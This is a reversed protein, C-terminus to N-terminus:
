RNSNFWFQTKWLDEPAYMLYRNGHRIFPNGHTHLWNTAVIMRPPYAHIRFLRINRVPRRFWGRSRLVADVYNLFTLVRSDYEYREIYVTRNEADFLYEMFGCLLCAYKAKCILRVYEDMDLIRIKVNLREEYLAIIDAMLDHIPRFRPEALDEPDPDDGKVRLQRLINDPIEGSRINFHERVFRVFMERNTKEIGM